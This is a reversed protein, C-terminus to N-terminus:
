SADDSPRTKNKRKKQNTITKIKTKSTPKQNEIGTIDGNIDSGNRCSAASIAFVM